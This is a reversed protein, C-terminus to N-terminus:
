PANGRRYRGSSRTLLGAVVMYRRLAAFDEHYRGLLENVETEAYERDEAFCQELLFELVVQKKKAQSPTAVLRGNKVFARLVRERYELPREAPMEHSQGQPPPNGARQSSKVDAM